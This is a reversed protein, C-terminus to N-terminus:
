IETKGVSRTEIHRREDSPDALALRLRRVAADISNEFDVLTDNPWLRKQIESRMIVERSRELLMALIQFSQEPLM